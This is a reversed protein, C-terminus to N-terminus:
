AQGGTQEAQARRAQRKAEYPALAVELPVVPEVTWEQRAGHRGASVADNPLQAVVEVPIGALVGLIHGNVGTDSYRTAWSEVGTPFSAAWAALATAGDNDWLAIDLGHHGGLGNSREAIRYLAPLTLHNALHHALTGLMTPLEPQNRTTM